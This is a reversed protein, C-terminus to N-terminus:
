AHKRRRERICAMLGLLLGFAIGSQNADIEPVEHAVSVDVSSLRVFDSLYDRNQSESLVEVNDLPWIYGGVLWGHSALGKPNAGVTNGQSAVDLFHGGDWGQALADDWRRGVFTDSAYRGGTLPTADAGTYALITMDSDELSWSINAFDLSVAQNFALLLMGMNRPSSTDTGTHLGGSGSVSIYDRRVDHGSESGYREDFYGGSFAHVSLNIGGSSYHLSSAYFNSDYGHNGTETLDFTVAFASTPIALAIVAIGQLFNM